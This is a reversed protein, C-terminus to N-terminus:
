SALFDAVFHSMIVTLWQQPSSACLLAGSSQKLFLINVKQRIDLVYTPAYGLNLDKERKKRVMFYKFEQTIDQRSQLLQLRHDVSKLLCINMKLLSIQLRFFPCFSCFSFPLHTWSIVCQVQSQAQVWAAPRSTEPAARSTLERVKSFVFFLFIINFRSNIHGNRHKDDRLVKLPKKQEPRGM